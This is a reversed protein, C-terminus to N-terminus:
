SMASTNFCRQFRTPAVLAHACSSPENQEGTMNCLFWISDNFIDSIKWDPGMGARLGGADGAVEELSSFCSSSKLSETCWPSNGGDWVTTCFCWLRGGGSNLLPLSISESVHCPRQVTCGRAGQKLSLRHVHGVHGTFIHPFKVSAKARGMVFCTFCLMWGFFGPNWDVILLFGHKFMQKLLGFM